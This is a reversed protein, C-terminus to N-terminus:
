QRVMPTDDFGIPCFYHNLCHYIFGSNEDALGSKLQTLAGEDTM